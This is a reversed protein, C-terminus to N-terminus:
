IEVLRKTLKEQQSAMSTHVKTDRIHITYRRIEPSSWLLIARTPPASDMPYDSLSKHNGGLFVTSKQVINIFVTSGDVKKMRELGDRTIIKRTSTGQKNLTKGRLAQLQYSLSVWHNNKNKAIWLSTPPLHWSRFVESLSGDYINITRVLLSEAANGVVENWKGEDSIWCKSLFVYVYITNHAM